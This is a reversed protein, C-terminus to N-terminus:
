GHTLCVSVVVAASLLQWAHSFFSSPLPYHLNLSIPIDKAEGGDEQM